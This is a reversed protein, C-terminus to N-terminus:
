NKLNKGDKAIGFSPAFDSFVAALLYKGWEGLPCMVANLSLANDHSDVVTNVNPIIQQDQPQRGPLQHLPNLNM